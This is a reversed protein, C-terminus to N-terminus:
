LFNTSNTQLVMTINNAVPTGTTAFSVEPYKGFDLEFEDGTKFVSSTELVIALSDVAATEFDTTKMLKVLTRGNSISVITARGSATGNLAVIDGVKLDEAVPSAFSASVELSDVGAGITHTSATYTKPTTRVFKGIELFTNDQNFIMKVVRKGEGGLKGGQFFEKLNVTAPTNVSSFSKM